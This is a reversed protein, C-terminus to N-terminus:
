GIRQESVLRQLLNDVISAAIRAHQIRQTAVHQDRTTQVM